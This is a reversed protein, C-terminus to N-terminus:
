PGVRLMKGLASATASDVGLGTRLESVSAFPGVHTRYDVIAEPLGIPMGPLAALEEASASNIDLRPTTARTGSRSSGSSRAFPVNVQRGDHVRASLNPLRGPDAQDTMGGAAALADAIRASASVRYLGPHVVAGSVFILAEPAQAPDLAAGIPVPDTGSSKGVLRWATVAAAIVAVVCLGWLVRQPWM